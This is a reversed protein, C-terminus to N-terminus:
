LQRLSARQPYVSFVLKEAMKWIIASLRCPELFLGNWMRCVELLQYYGTYLQFDVGNSWM